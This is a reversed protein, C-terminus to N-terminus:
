CLCALDDSSRATPEGKYEGEILAYRREIEEVMDNRLREDGTVMTQKLAGSHAYSIDPCFWTIARASCGPPHQQFMLAARAVARNAKCAYFAIPGRSPAGAFESKYEVHKDAYQKSAM